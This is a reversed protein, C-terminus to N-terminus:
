AVPLSVLFIPGKISVRALRTQLTLKFLEHWLPGSIYGNVPLFFEATPVRLTYSARLDNEIRVNRAAFDFLPFLSIISFNSSELDDLKTVM